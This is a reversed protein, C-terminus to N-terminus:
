VKVTEEAGCASSNKEGKSSNWVGTYLEDSVNYWQARLFFSHVLQWLLNTHNFKTSICSEQCRSIDSLVEHCFVSFLEWLECLWHSTTPVSQWSIFFWRIRFTPNSPVGFNPGCQFDCGAVQCDTFLSLQWEHTLIEWPKFLNAVSKLLLLSFSLLSCSVESICNSSKANFVFTSAETLRDFTLAFCLSTSRGAWGCSSYGDPFSLPSIILWFIIRWDSVWHWFLQTSKKTMTM